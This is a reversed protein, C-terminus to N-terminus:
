FRLIMMLLGATVLTAKRYRFLEEQANDPNYISGWSSWPYVKSVDSLPLAALNRAHRGLAPILLLLLGALSVLLMGHKIDTKRVSHQKTNFKM